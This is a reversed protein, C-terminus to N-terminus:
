YLLDEVDEVHSGELQLSKFFCVHTAGVDPTLSAATQGGDGRASPGEARSDGVEEEEGTICSAPESSALGTHWGDHHVVTSRM